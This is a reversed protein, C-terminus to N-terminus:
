RTMRHTTNAVMEPHIGWLLPEGRVYRRLEEVMLRGMRRCEMDHSGALHPTLFINPLTYLPSGAVPPEPYTVDLVFQLDPREAAVAVMEEEAIVAGRATNILAAGTRMSAVHSGRILGETEPLWPTHLSVVDSRQFLEELSVSEVGLAAADEASLFPDYALVHVDLMRLRERVARGILGMSVLGVTSGYAGPVPPKKAYAGMERIQRSLAFAHKLCFVISALTYEAVPVANAAAASTVQIGREWVEPFLMGSTAGAGYFFAKLRPAAALFGADLRPGGWGSLIVEADALIAPNEQVSQPTQPPAYIDVIEAIDRREDPGYIREFPWVGLVYLGKRREM